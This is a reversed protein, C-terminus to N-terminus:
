SARRPGTPGLGLQGVFTPSDDPKHLGIGRPDTDDDASETRFRAPLEAAEKGLAAALHPYLVPDPPPIPVTPSLPAAKVDPPIQVTPSAPPAAKIVPQMATTGTPPHWALPNEGLLTRAKQFVDSEGLIEYHTAIVATQSSFDRQGRTMAYQVASALMGYVVGFVVGWIVYSIISHGPVFIWLLVALALGWIVGGIAGSVLVKGWSLKGTVREVSKLDTGVIALQEVPFQHDGLYDVAKQADEYTDYVAVSRPDTLNLLAANPQPSM